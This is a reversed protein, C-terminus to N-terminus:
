LLKFNQNIDLITTIVYVFNLFQKQVKLILLGSFFIM